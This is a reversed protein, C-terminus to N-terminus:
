YPKRKEYNTGGIVEKGTRRNITTIIEQTEGYVIKVKLRGLTTLYRSMYRLMKDESLGAKDIVWKTMFPWTSPIGTFGYYIDYVEVPEPTPPTIQSVNLERRVIKLKTKM